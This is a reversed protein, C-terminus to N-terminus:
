SGKKYVIKKTGNQCTGVVKGDAEADRDVITTTFSQVGNNTIKADIEAKLEGCDKPQALAPTTVAVLLCALAIKRM